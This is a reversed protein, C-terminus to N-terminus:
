NGIGSEARDDPSAEMLDVADACEAPLLVMINTNTSNSFLSSCTQSEIKDVCSEYTASEQDVRDCGAVRELADFCAGERGEAGAICKVARDCIVSLLDRCQQQPSKDASCGSVGVGFLLAILSSKRV